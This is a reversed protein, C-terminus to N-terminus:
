LTSSIHYFFEFSLYSPFTIAMKLIQLISTPMFAGFFEELYDFKPSSNILTGRNSLSKVFDSETNFYHLDIEDSNIEENDFLPNSYVKFDESMIEEDFLSEDDSSTFDDNDDFIPNSFTIFVSSSEDKVPVDCESEDDSTVE